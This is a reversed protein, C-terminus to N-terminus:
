SSSSASLTSTYAFADEQARSLQVETSETRMRTAYVDVDADSLEMIASQLAFHPSITTSKGEAGINSALYYSRIHNMRHAHM